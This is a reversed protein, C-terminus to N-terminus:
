TWMKEHLVVSQSLQNWDLRECTTERFCIKINDDWWCYLREFPRRKQSKEALRKYMKLKKGGRYNEWIYKAGTQVEEYEHKM